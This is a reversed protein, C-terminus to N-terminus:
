RWGTTSATSSRASSNGDRFLHLAQPPAHIFDSHRTDLAYPALIESVLISLYLALLVLGSLVALRHRRFRWWILRWQPAQAYRLQAPTPM